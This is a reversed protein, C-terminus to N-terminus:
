GDAEIEVRAEDVLPQLRDAVSSHKALEALAREYHVRAEATRGLKAHALAAWLSREAGEIGSIRRGRLVELAKEYRGARYLAIGLIRETSPTPGLRWARRALELAKDPKRYEPRRCNCLIRALQMTVSADRPADDVARTLESITEEMRGQRELARALQIRIHVLDPWRDLADRLVKEARAPDNLQDLLLLGLTFHAHSYELNLEIAKRFAAEAGRYDGSDRRACGLNFRPAPHNPVLRILTEFCQVAEGPEKLWDCLLAGLGMLASFDHPDLSLAHQYCERARQMDCRVSLANGLNGHCSAERPENRVAAHLARVAREGDMRHNVLEAGLINQANPDTRRPDIAVSRELQEVAATIRRLRALAIGLYARTAANEPELAVARRLAKEAPPFRGTRLLVYGAGAHAEADDPALEGARRYADFAQPFAGQGVLVKGLVTLPLASDPDIAAAKRCAEVAADFSGRLRHVTALDCLTAVDNPFRAATATAIGLAVDLTGEDALVVDTWSHADQWHSRSALASRLAQAAQDLEGAAHHVAALNYHAPAFGPELNVSEQLAARARDLDGARLWAVGLNSHTRAASRDLGVARLLAAAADAPRGSELLLGGLHFHTQPDDERLSRARELAAQAKAGDGTRQLAVGLLRQALASQDDVDVARRFAAVAGDLYGMEELEIGLRCEHVAHAPEMEVAHRHAVLAGEYDGSQRRANGLRSMLCASDPRLALAATYHSCAEGARPPDCAMLLDALHCRIWFDGPHSWLARRLLVLAAAQEGRAALVLGVRDLARAPWADVEPSAALRLLADTNEACLAQVLGPPAGGDAECAALLLPRWERDHLRPSRLRLVAWEDLAGVLVEPDAHSRITEPDPGASPFAEEFAADLRVVDSASAEACRLRLSELRSRLAAEAAKWEAAKREAAEEARIEDRLSIARARLEPITEGRGALDCARQAAAVARVWDGAGKWSAAEDMARDVVATVRRRHDARERERWLWGGGGALLAALITAAAVLIHRRHRRRQRAAVRAEEARVGTRDAAAREEVATLRSRHAREVVNTLHETVARAVAGADPPRAERMPSLCTRCLAVLVEDGGCAALRREADELDAGVAQLLPDTEGAGFPPKGTLIECLIAGLAFVDAREDLEEVRGQAQEPSMYAPTGMVVGPRSAEATSPAADEPERVTPERQGIVKAFGWDLVHVEGFSGVMVNAPKLDRHVVGRAHAYAMADCVQAFVSLVHHRQEALDKREALIAALTQGRVLKMAFYPRRDARLGLDYVPVIGPHQLQGAVRAERVFRHLFERSHAHRARLVKMAVDRGLDNDVGAYVVGIGGRAIERGIEYRRAARAQEGGEAHSAEDARGRLRVRPARRGQEELRTLVSFLAM